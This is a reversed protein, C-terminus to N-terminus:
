TAHLIHNVKANFDYFFYGGTTSGDGFSKLLPQALVDIYTRRASVIFSTKDKIIPAELTLKSSILGISGEGHFKKMNGEKMRIDIVSSLRGGYRAPFGGKILKM